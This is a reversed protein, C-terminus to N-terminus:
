PGWSCRSPYVQTTVNIAGDVIGNEESDNIDIDSPLQISWSLNQEKGEFQHKIQEFQKQLMRVKPNVINQGGTACNDESGTLKAWDEKGLRGEVFEIFAKDIFTAGCRRGVVTLVKPL